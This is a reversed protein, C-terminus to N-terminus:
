VVFIYIDDKSTFYTFIMRVQSINRIAELLVDLILKEVKLYIFFFSLM